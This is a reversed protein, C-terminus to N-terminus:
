TTPEEHPHVPDLEGRHLQEACTEHLAHLQEVLGAMHWTATHAADTVGLHGNGPGFEFARGLATVSRAPGALTATQRM